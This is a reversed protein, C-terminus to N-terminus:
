EAAVTPVRERVEDANRDLFEPLLKGLLKGKWGRGLISGVLRAKFGRFGKHEVIVRTGAAVPELTFSVVTDLANTRWTYALKRPAELELIECRIIGDFGPTPDTRFQFRHGLRPEFDNPMLWEALAARDTLARWVREPRHPYVVEFRLDRKM